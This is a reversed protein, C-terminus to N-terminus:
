GAFLIGAATRADDKARHHSGMDIRLHAAVTDLKHNKLKPFM